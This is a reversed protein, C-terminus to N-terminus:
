NGGGLLPDLLGGLVSGHSPAPADSTSPQPAPASSGTPEPAAPTAPSQGFIPPTIPAPAPPQLPSLLPNVGQLSAASPLVGNVSTLLGALPTGTLFMRDVEPLTFDLTAFLNIYDGRFARKISGITFPFTIGEFSEPLNRGADALGKLAPQLNRLNAVLGDQSGKLVQDAVTGFDSIAQMTSVLNEREANLSRLGPPITDLAKTLTDNEGALTGALNNLNDLVRVLDDRQANLSGTFTNLQDLLGRYDSEHGGLAKDLETDITHLQDLGGGNLLLSLASLLEETEPYRSTRDLGVTAGSALQGAPPADAPADLELYEAGLLSKQGIRAVANAPVKTGPDLGVTVKATWNEFEIRRVSGVTVDNVKVESNPVLNAANAMQVTVNLADSGGGKALPLPQSDVGAFGCGATSFALLAVAVRRGRM